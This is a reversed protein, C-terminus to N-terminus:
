LELPGRWLRVAATAATGCLINDAIGPVALPNGLFITADWLLACFAYSAGYAKVTNATHKEKQVAALERDDARSKVRLDDCAGQIRRKEKVWAGKLRDISEQCQGKLDNREKAMKAHEGELEGVLHKRCQHECEAKRGGKIRRKEQACMDQKRNIEERCQVRLLEKENTMKVSQREFDGADRRATSLSEECTELRAASSRELVGKEERCHERAHAAAKREVDLQHMATENLDRFAAAHRIQMELIAKDHAAQEHMQQLHNKEQKKDDFRITCDEFAVRWGANEKQSSLLLSATHNLEGLILDRDKRWGRAHADLEQAAHNVFFSHLVTWEHVKAELEEIRSVLQANQARLSRETVTATLSPIAIRLAVIIVAAAFALILYKHQREM